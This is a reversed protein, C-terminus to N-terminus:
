ALSRPARMSTTPDIALLDQYAGLAAALKGDKELRQASAFTTAVAIRDRQRRRAALAGPVRRDRRDRRRPQARATSSAPWSRATSATSSRSRARV